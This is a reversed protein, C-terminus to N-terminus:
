MNKIEKLIDQITISREKDGDRIKGNQIFDVLHQRIDGVYQEVYNSTIKDDKFYHNFFALKEEKSSWNINKWLRKHGEPTSM